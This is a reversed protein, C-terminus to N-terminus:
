ERDREVRGVFEGRLEGRLQQGDLRRRHGVPQFREHRQPNVHQHSEAPPVLQDGLRQGLIDIQVAAGRGGDVVAATNRVGGLALQRLRVGFAVREGLGIGADRVGPVQEVVGRAVDQGDGALHEVAFDVVAFASEVVGEGM